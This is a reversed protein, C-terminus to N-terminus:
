LEKLWQEAVTLMAQTPEKGLRYLKKWNDSKREYEVNVFTLKGNQTRTQASFDVSRALTVFDTLYHKLAIPLKHENWAQQEERAKQDAQMKQADAKAADLGAASDPGGLDISKLVIYQKKFEEPNSSLMPAIQQARAYLKAKDKDEKWNQLDQDFLMKLAAPPMQSFSQAISAAMVNQMQKMAAQPNASMKAADARPDVNIGHDVAHFRDKIWGNYLTAFGPSAVMRKAYLSMERVAQVREAPSKAKWQAAMPGKLIYAGPLSLSSSGFFSKAVNQADADTLGVLAVGGQWALAAASLAFCAVILRPHRIM